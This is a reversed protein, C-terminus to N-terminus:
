EQSDPIFIYNAKRLYKEPDQSIVERCPRVINGMSDKIDMRVPCTGCSAPHDSCILRWVADINEVKITPSDKKVSIPFEM